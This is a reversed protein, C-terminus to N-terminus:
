DTPIAVPIFATRRDEGIKVNVSQFDFKEQIEEYTSASIMAVQVNGLNTGQPIDEFFGRVRPVSAPRVAPGLMRKVEATVAPTSKDLALVYSRDEEAFQAWKLWHEQM